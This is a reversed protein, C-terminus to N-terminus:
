GMRDKSEIRRLIEVMEAMYIKTETSNVTLLKLAEAMQKNREVHAVVQPSDCCVPKAKGNGNGNGNPKVAKKHKALAYLKDIAFMMVVGTLGADSPTIPIM